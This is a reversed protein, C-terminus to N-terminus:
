KQLMCGSTQGMYRASAQFGLCSVIVKRQQNNPEFDSIPIWQKTWRHCYDENQKMVFYCSCFQKAYYASIIQPFRSWAKWDKVVWGSFLLLFLGLVVIGIFLIRRFM